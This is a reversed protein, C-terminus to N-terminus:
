ARGSPTLLNAALRVAGPHLKKLQRWLALACYVFEGDGTRAYLLAGREPPQGPDHLELLEEYEDAWLSPLYLGREQEWGDWDGPRITNPHNLLVHGPRLIRVPADARTVRARGVQFPLFPAGLFGEGPPHFEVDKQYFVVLRRHRQQAFELLRRFGTRVAPRDRLARIDIVITDHQSLDAVAVDSDSLEACDLGLGGAGLVSILADDRSRVIGIRLDRPATVDIKHVPLEVRTRGLRVRLVDVGLRREAPARVEFGFTDSRQERLSVRVRDRALAYGSAGRVELDGEIPFQSNRTVVVRFQLSDRGTPLLLMRPVVQLEAPARQEIPLRLTVPVSTDGVQMTFRLQVPPEFRAARFRRAMPEGSDDDPVRVAISARDAGTWADAGSEGVLLKAEVGHLGAVSWRVPRADVKHLQAAVVLAEGGVAVAGPPVEVEIQLGSLLLLLREVAAIRREIRRRVDGPATGDRLSRLEGLVPLLDAAEVPRRPLEALFAGLAGARAPADSWRGDFLSPMSAPRDPRWADEARPEFRLTPGFVQDLPAPPGPSLHAGRLIEYAHRRLTVGLVPDLRDAEIVWSRESYSSAAGLCLSRVVHPPEPAAFTADAALAVAEPLLEIIALDHGHSEEVHHTTLVADPRLARILRALDHLTGERGWEAFTTEASRRYGADPRDLYWVEADFAACGVETELTRIRELADGTESGLSNQGGGGRTLLLVAVRAGFARRLWVGPLIYRDDPHSAVLLFLADAQADRRAQDLAVAGAPTRLGIDAWQQGLLSAM